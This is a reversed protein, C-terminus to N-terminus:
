RTTRRTTHTATTGRTIHGTASLPLGHARCYACRPCLLPAGAGPVAPVEALTAVVPQWGPTELRDAARDADLLPRGWPDFVAFRDRGTGDRFPIAYYGDRWALLGVGEPRRCGACRRREALAQTRQRAARGREWAAPEPAPAAVPM